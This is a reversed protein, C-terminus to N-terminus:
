KIKLNKKLVLNKENKLGVKEMLIDCKTITILKQRKIKNILNKKWMGFRM